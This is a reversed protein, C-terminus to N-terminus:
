RAATSKRAAEAIGGLLMGVAWHTTFLIFITLVGNTILDAM